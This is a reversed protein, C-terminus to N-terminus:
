HQEWRAKLQHLMTTSEGCSGTHQIHLGGYQNDPVEVSLDVVHPLDSDDPRPTTTEVHASLLGKTYEVKITFPKLGLMILLLHGNKIQM